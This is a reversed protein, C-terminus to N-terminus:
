FKIQEKLFSVADPAAWNAEGEVRGIEEGKVNILYSTPLGRAHLLAPARGTNDVYVALHQIGHRKYFGQVIDRGDVDETLAIITLRKMDFQGQLASLSPLEHACPGCWTAWLNLLIYRGEFDKLGLAHGTSDEFSLLPMPIPPNTAIFHAAFDSARASTGAIM